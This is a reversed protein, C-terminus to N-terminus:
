RDRASARGGRGPLVIYKGKLEMLDVHTESRHHATMKCREMLHDAAADGARSWPASVGAATRKDTCVIEKEHRRVLWTQAAHRAAETSEGVLPTAEFM